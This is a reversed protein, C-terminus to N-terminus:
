QKFKEKLAKEVTSHVYGKLSGGHAAIDKVISSSLFSYEEGPSMFISEIKPEMSRNINALQVEYEFDSVARLGRLIITASHKKAFQVLLSNFPLVEIKKTKGFVTEALEVRKQLSFLAKKSPNEAVAIILKDFIKTARKALDTHGNTIPDFTGPYVAIFKM